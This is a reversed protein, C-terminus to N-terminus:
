IGVENIVGGEFFYNVFIVLFSSIFAMQFVQVFNIALFIWFNKHKILQRLFQFFTPSHFDESKYEEKNYDVIM